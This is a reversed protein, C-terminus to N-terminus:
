ENVDGDNERSMTIDNLYQGFIQSAYLFDTSQTRLVVSKSVMYDLYLTIVSLIREATGDIFELNNVTLYENILDRIYITDQSLEEREEIESLRIDNSAKVLAHIIIESMNVSLLPKFQQGNLNVTGDCENEEVYNHLAVSIDRLVTKDPNPGLIELVKEFFEGGYLEDDTTNNLLNDVETSFAGLITKISDRVRKVGTPYVLVPSLPKELLKSMITNARDDIWELYSEQYYKTVVDDADMDVSDPIPINKERLFLSPNMREEMLEKLSNFIVEDIYTDQLRDETVASMMNQFMMKAVEIPCRCVKKCLVQFNAYDQGDFTFGLQKLTRAQPILTSSLGVLTEIDTSITNEDAMDNLDLLDDFLKIDDNGKMHYEDRITNIKLKLDEGAKELKEDPIDMATLTGMGRTFNNRLDIVRNM